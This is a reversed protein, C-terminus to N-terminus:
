IVAVFSAEHCSARRALIKETGELFHFCLKNQASVHNDLHVYIQQVTCEAAIADYVELRTTSASFSPNNAIVKDLAATGEAEGLANTFATQISIDVGGNDYIQDVLEIAYTLRIANMGLSKIKSVITQISQYQLGEPIMVDAAGPWNAGAYVVNEGQTNKMYQGSTVLPGYPWSAREVVLQSPAALATDFVISGLALLAPVLTQFMAKAM